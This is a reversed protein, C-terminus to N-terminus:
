TADAQELLTHATRSRITGDAVHRALIPIFRGDGRSACDIIARIWPGRIGPAPPMHAWDLAESRCGAKGTHCHSSFRRSLDAIHSAAQSAGRSVAASDSRNRVKVSDPQQQRCLAIFEPLTPPYPPLASLAKRIREPQDSFGVLKESWQALANKLGADTGDALIQGSRWMDVFRSGYNGQLEAFLKKVWKEPLRRPSAPIANRLTTEM